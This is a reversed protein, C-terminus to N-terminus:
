LLFYLILIEHFGNSISFIHLTQCAIQNANHFKLAIQLKRHFQVKIKQVIKIIQSIKSPVRIYTEEIIIKRSFYLYMLSFWYQFISTCVYLNTLALNFFFDAHFPVGCLDLILVTKFGLFETAYCLIIM